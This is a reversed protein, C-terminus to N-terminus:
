GHGKDWQYLAAVELLLAVRLPSFELDHHTKAAFATAARAVRRLVDVEAELEAIREEPDVFPVRERCSIIGRVEGDKGIVEIPGERRSRDLVAGANAIVEASTVRPRDAM